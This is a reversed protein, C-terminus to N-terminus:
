IVRSVAFIMGLAFANLVTFLSIQNMIADNKEKTYKIMQKQTEIFAKDSSLLRFQNTIQASTSTIDSNTSSINTKLSNVSDVRSDSLASTIELISNIKLNLSQSIALMRRANEVDNQQLSTALILFQKMAYLYRAEYFCYENQVQAHFATDIKSKNDMDINGTRPNAKADPVIGKSKLSNIQSQILTQSMKKTVPDVPIQDTAIGNPFLTQLDANSFSAASDPCVAPSSLGSASM